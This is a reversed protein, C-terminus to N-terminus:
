ALWRGDDMITRDRLEGRHRWTLIRRPTFVLFVRDGNRDPVMPLRGLVPSKAVDADDAPTVVTDGDLLVVDTTSGLAIRTRSQGEINRVTRNGSHTAMLLRLGDWACGLPVLHAGNRGATAIWAHPERELLALVDAKREAVSRPPVASFGRRTDATGAAAATKSM